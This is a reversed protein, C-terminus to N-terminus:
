APMQRQMCATVQLSHTLLSEGLHTCVANLGFTEIQQEPTVATFLAGILSRASPLNALTAKGSLRGLCAQECLIQHM